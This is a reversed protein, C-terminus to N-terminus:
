TIVISTFPIATYKSPHISTLTCGSSKQVWGVLKVVGADNLSRAIVFPEFWAISENLCQCPGCVQSKELWFCWQWGFAQSQEETALQRAYIAGPGDGV